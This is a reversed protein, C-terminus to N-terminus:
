PHYTILRTLDCGAPLKVQDPPVNGLYCGPILYVTSRAPTAAPSPAAQAVERMTERYTVAQGSVIRTDFSVAERGSAKLEIRYTGPALELTGHIDASTGVYLGDVFVQATDPEIALSLWGNAPTPISVPQPTPASPAMMGPNTMQQSSDVGWQYPAGFFVVTPPRRVHRPERHPPDPPTVTELTPQLGIPPLPLGIPPLPVGISPAAVPQQAHVGTALCTTLIAIALVNRTV